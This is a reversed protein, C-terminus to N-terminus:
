VFSAMCTMFTILMAVTSTGTLVAAISAGSISSDKSSQSANAAAAQAQGTASATGATSTSSGAKSKVSASSTTTPSSLVATAGVSSAYAAMATYLSSSEYTSCQSSSVITPTYPITSIVGLSEPPETYTTTVGHSVYVGPTSMDDGKCSAFTGNIEAYNVPDNYTCGIRDYVTKICSDTLRYERSNPRM